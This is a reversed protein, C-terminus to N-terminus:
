DLKVLFLRSRNNQSCSAQSIIRSLLAHPGWSQYQVNDWHIHLISSHWSIKSVSSWHVDSWNRYRHCVDFWSTHCGCFWHGSFVDRMPSLHWCVGNRCRYRDRVHFWGRRRNSSCRCCINHRRSRCIDWRSICGVSSHRHRDV